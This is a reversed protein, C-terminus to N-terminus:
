QGAGFTFRVSSTAADECVPDNGSSTVEAGILPTIQLSTCDSTGPGVSTGLGMSAVILMLQAAAVETGIAESYAACFSGDSAALVYVSDHPSAIENVGMDPQETLAWGKDTFLAATKAADGQGFACAAIAASYVKDPSEDGLDATMVEVMFWDQAVAPAAFLCAALALAVANSRAKGRGDVMQKGYATAQQSHFTGQSGTFGQCIVRTSKNVLVSM